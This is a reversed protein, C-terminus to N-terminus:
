ASTSRRASRTTRPPGRPPRAGPPSSARLRRPPVRAGYRPEIAAAMTPKTAGNAGRVSLEVRRVDEREEEWLALLRERYNQDIWSKLFRTPVSLSVGGDACGEFDVRAFWSAFVQDGFEGKLRARVRDWCSAGADGLM